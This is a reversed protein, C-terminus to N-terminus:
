QAKRKKADAAKVTLAVGAIELVIAIGFIAGRFFDSWDPGPHPLSPAIRPWAIAIVTMSLGVVIFAMAAPIIKEPANELRRLIM